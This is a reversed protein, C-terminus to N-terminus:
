GSWHLLVADLDAAGVVGDGDGDAPCTSGPPCAGWRLLVALLKGVAADAAVARQGLWSM